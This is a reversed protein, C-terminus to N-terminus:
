VTGNMFLSLINPMGLNLLKVINWFCDIGIKEFYKCLLSRAFNMFLIVLYFRGIGFIDFNQKLDGGYSRKNLLVEM